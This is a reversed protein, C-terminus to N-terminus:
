EWGHEQQAEEEQERQHVHDLVAEVGLHHAARHQRVQRQVIEAAKEDMVEVPPDQELGEHVGEDGRAEGEEQPVGHAKAM